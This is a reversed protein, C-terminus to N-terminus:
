ANAQQGKLEAIRREVDKLQGEAWSRLDELYLRYAELARLESDRDYYGYWAM